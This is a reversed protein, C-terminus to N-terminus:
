LRCLDAQHHPGSGAGPRAFAEQLAQCASPPAPVTAAPRCLWLWSSPPAHAPVADVGGSLAPIFHIESSEQV